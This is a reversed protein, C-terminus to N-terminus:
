TEALGRHANSNGWNEGSKSQIAYVKDDTFFLSDVGELSSPVVGPLSKMISELVHGFKTRLGNFFRERVITTIYENPDVDRYILVDHHLDRGQLLSKVKISKDDICEKYQKIHTIIKDQVDNPIM